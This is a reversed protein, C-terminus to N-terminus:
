LLVSGTLTLAISRGWGVGAIDAAGGRRLFPLFAIGVWVFRHIVIELPTIGISIGHLASVLGVAWFLAATARVPLRYRDPVAATAPSTSEDPPKM